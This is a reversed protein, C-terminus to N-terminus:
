EKINLEEEKISHLHWDKNFSYEIAEIFYEEPPFKLYFDMNSKHDLEDVYDIDWYVCPISEKSRAVRTKLKEKRM